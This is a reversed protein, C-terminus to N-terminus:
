KCWRGLLGVGFSAFGFLSTVVFVPCARGPGVTAWLVFGAVLSVASIAILLIWVVACVKASRLPNRM